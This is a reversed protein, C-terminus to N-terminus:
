NRSIQFKEGLKPNEMYDNWFYINISDKAYEVKVSDIENPFSEAEKRYKEFLMSKTYVKTKPGALAGVFSEQIRINDDDYYIKSYPSTLQGIISIVVVIGAFPILTFAGFLIPIIKLFKFYYKELQNLSTNQTILNYFIGSLIAIFFIIRNTWIGKIKLENFFFIISIAITLYHSYKLYISKQLSLRFKNNKWYRLSFTYTIILVILWIIFEM